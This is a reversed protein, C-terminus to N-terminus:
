TLSNSGAADGVNADLCMASGSALTTTPSQLAVMNAGSTASIVM